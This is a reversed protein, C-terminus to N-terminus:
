VLTSPVKLGGLKPNRSCLCWPGLGKGALSKALFVKLDICVPSSLPIQPLTTGKFSVGCCLYTAASVATLEVNPYFTAGKAFQGVALM